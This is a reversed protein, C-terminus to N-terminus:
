DLLFLRSWWAPAERAATLLALLVGAAGTLLGPNDVARADNEIDRYGVPSAPDYAALLEDTLSHVAERFLPEDTDWAFHCMILLTGATGHCLTPSRLGSLARSAAARAIDLSLARLGADDLAQAVLWLARALGASGYCWTPGATHAGQDPVPEPAWGIHQPWAGLDPLRHALQALWRAERDLRALLRARLPDPWPLDDHRLALATTALVGPLGHALGLDVAGHPYRPRAEPLMFRPSTVIRPRDGHGPEHHGLEGHASEHHELEGQGPEHHGLLDLLVDLIRLLDGAHRDRLRPDSLLLAAPGCVGSVLDYAMTPGGDDVARLAHDLAAQAATPFWAALSEDLRRYRTGGRSLAKTAAMLGAVGDFLSVPTSTRVDSVARTLYHRGATDLELEPHADDVAGLALALGADGFALSASRWQNVQPHGSRTHTLEVAGAVASPDALRRSVAAVTDRVRRQQSATIIM